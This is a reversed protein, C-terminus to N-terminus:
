KSGTVPWHRDVTKVGNVSVFGDMLDTVMMPILQELNIRYTLHWLASLKERAQENIYVTKEKEILVMAVHGSNETVVFVFEDRDAKLEQFWYDINDELEYEYLSYAMEGGELLATRLLGEIRKREGKNQKSGSQKTM